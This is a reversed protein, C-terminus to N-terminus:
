MGQAGNALSSIIESELCPNQILKGSRMKEKVVEEIYTAIDSSNWDAALQLHPFLKLSTAITHEERSTILIKVVSKSSQGLQNIMSLVTVQEDHGCEDLGDIFIYVESFYNITECLISNLETNGTTRLSPRCFRDLQQELADPIVINELLERLITGFITPVELSKPDSFDCYYFAIAAEKRTINRDIIDQSSFAQFCIDKEVIDALVM